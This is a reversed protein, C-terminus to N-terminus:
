EHSTIQKNDKWASVVGVSALSWTLLEFLPSEPFYLIIALFSNPVASPSISTITTLLGPGGPPGRNYGSTVWSLTERQQCLGSSSPPLGIVPSSNTKSNSLLKKISFPM